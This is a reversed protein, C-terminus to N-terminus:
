EDFVEMTANHVCPYAILLSYTGFNARFLGFGMFCAPGPVTGSRVSRGTLMLITVVIEVKKPQVPAQCIQARPRLPLGTSCSM